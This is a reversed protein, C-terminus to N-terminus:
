SSLELVCRCTADWALFPAEATMPITAELLPSLCTSTLLCPERLANIGLAQDATNPDFWRLRTLANPHSTDIVAMSSNSHTQKRDSDSSSQVGRAM